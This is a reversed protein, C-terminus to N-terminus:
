RSSRSERYTPEEHKLPFLFGYRPFLLLISKQFGASQKTYEQEKNEKIESFLAELDDWKNAYISLDCPEHPDKLV